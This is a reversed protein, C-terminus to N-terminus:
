NASEDCQHDGVAGDILERMVDIHGAHRATDELIHIVVWRLSVSDDFMTTGVEDLGVRSIVEDAAGRARRYFALIGATSDHPDIRVDAYDDGGDIPLQETPQGFTRCIWIYEWTALHKVLGLLTNGSPLMAHRLEADTLGQLKWLVADRHRDLSAQLSGKEGGLYPVRQAVIRKGSRGAAARSRCRTSRGPAGTSMRLANGPRCWPMPSNRNQGSAMATGTM